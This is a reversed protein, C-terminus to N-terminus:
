PVLDTPASAPQADAAPPSPSDPDSITSGWYASGWYSQALYTSGWYSAGTATSGWYSSGWYSSGWYSSGWYSSGWYSQAWTPDSAAAAAWADTDIVPPGGNSDPVLFQEVAANPNPPAALQAAAAADIEGIGSSGAVANPLPTATAMLAGKVQDPTWDPHLALLDAATGAVIPSALSTGSLQM